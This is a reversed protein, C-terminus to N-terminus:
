KSTPAYRDELKGCTDYVYEELTNKLDQTCLYTRAHHMYARYLRRVETHQGQRPVRACPLFTHSFYARSFNAARAAAEDQNLTTSLNALLLLVSQLSVPPDM